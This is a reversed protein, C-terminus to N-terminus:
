LSNLTKMVDLTAKVRLDIYRPAEVKIYDLFARTATALGIRTPFLAFLDGSTTTWEPLVQVLQGESLEHHCAYIPLSCIGANRIAAEKLLNHNNCCLNTKINVFSAEGLRNLLRLAVASKNAASYALYNLRELDAIAEIGGSQNLYRPSCVLVWDVHSIKTCVIESAGDETAIGGRIVLDFGDDILRAIRNSVEINLTVKPNAKIFEPIIKSFVERTIEDPLSIRIVGNPELASNRAAVEGEKASLVIQKSYEFFKRGADTMAISRSNRQVLRLGLSEELAAMRRSIKSKPIDLAKAAATFGGLSIIKNFLYLDNLDYSLKHM